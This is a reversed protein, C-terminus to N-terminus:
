ANFMTIYVSPRKMVSLSPGIHFNVGWVDGYGSRYIKHQKSSGLKPKYVFYSSSSYGQMEVLNALQIEESYQKKKV